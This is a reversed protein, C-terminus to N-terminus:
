SDDPGPEILRRLERFRDPLHDVLFRQVTQQPDALSATPGAVHQGYAWYPGDDLRIRFGRYGLGPPEQPRTPVAALSGLLRRLQKTTADDLEWAPNPRGSFLDLEVLAV